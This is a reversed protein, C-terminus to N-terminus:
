IERNGEKQLMRAKKVMCIAGESPTQRADVLSARTPESMFPLIFKSMGGTLSCPLTVDHKSQVAMLVYCIRDICAAAQKLLSAAAADGSQWARIVLPALEAFMSSNARNAWDVLTSLDQQFHRYIEDTLASSSGRGDLWYLTQRVAQLGLWAGGGEDDHPFGWGAVRSTQGAYSQFGIVGTGAIIISGDNGGHAGLCAVFADSAVVLRAFSHPVSVFAQYASAIECGALGMGAYVPCPLKDADLQHSTLIDDIGHNISAWAQEVSLRINAPGATKEGLLNGAEDEIRITTKTGGGDVGIYLEEM